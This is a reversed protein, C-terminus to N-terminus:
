SMTVITEHCAVLLFFRFLTVFQQRYLASHGAGSQSPAQTIQGAGRMYGSIGNGAKLAPLCKPSTCHPGDPSGELVSAAFENTLIVYTPGAHSHSFPRHLEPALKRPVEHQAEPPAVSIRGWNIFSRRIQRPTPDVGNGGGSVIAALEDSM